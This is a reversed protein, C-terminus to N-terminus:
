MRKATTTELIPMRLHDLILDVEAWLLFVFSGPSASCRSVDIFIESAMVSPMKMPSGPQDQEDDEGEARKAEPAVM